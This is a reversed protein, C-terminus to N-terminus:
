MSDMSLRKAEKRFYGQDSFLTESDLHSPFPPYLRLRQSCETPQLLGEFSRLYDIAEM